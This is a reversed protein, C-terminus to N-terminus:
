TTQIMCLGLEKPLATLQEWSMETNKWSKGAIEGFFTTEIYSKLVKESENDLSTFEIGYGQSYNNGAFPEVRYLILGDIELERKMGMLPVTIRVADGKEMKAGTKIFLGKSSLSLVEALSSTEGTSFMGPLNVTLRLNQRPQKELHRQILSFLAFVDVPVRLTFHEADCHINDDDRKLLVLPLGETTKDPLHNPLSINSNSLLRSDFIILDFSLKGLLDQLQEPKSSVTVRYGWHKLIVEVTSLLDEENAGVLIRKMKSM